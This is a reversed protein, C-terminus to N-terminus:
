LGLSDDTVIDHLGKVMKSRTVESITQLSITQTENDHDCM